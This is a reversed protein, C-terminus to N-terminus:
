RARAAGLAASPLHPRAKHASSSPQRVDRAGGVEAWDVIPVVRPSYIAINRARQYSAQMPIARSLDFRRAFASSVALQPAMKSCLLSCTSASWLQTANPAREGTTCPEEDRHHSLAMATPAMATTATATAAAAAAMAAATATENVELSKQLAQLADRRRKSGPVRLCSRLSCLAGIRRPNDHPHPPLSRRPSTSSAKLSCTPRVCQIRQRSFRRRFGVEARRCRTSFSSLSSPPSLFRCARTCVM